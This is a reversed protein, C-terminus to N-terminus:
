KLPEYRAAELLQRAVELRADKETDPPLRIDAHFPNAATVTGQVECRNDSGGISANRIDGASIEAFGYFNTATARRRRKYLHRRALALFLDRPALSLRNVSIGKKDKPMFVNPKLRRKKKNDLHGSFLERGMVERDNVSMPSRLGALASSSHQLFLVWLKCSALLYNGFSM